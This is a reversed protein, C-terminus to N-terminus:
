PQNDEDQVVEIGRRLLTTFLVDRIKLNSYVKDGLMKKDFYQIGHVTYLDSYLLPYIVDELLNLHIMFDGTVQYPNLNIKYTQKVHSIIYESIHNVIEEQMAKSDTNCKLTMQNPQPGDSGNMDSCVKSYKIIDQYVIKRIIAIMKNFEQTKMYKIPSQLGENLRIELLDTDTDDYKGVFTENFQIDSNSRGTFLDMFNFSILLIIGLIYVVTVFLIQADIKKPM